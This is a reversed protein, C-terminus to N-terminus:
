KGALGRHACHKKHRHVADELARMDYGQSKFSSISIHQKMGYKSVATEQTMFEQLVTCEATCPTAACASRQYLRVRRRVETAAYRHGGGRSRDQHSM